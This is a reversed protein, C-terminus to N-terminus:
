ANFMEVNSEYYANWSIIEHCLLVATSPPLRFCLAVDYLWRLGALLMGLLSLRVMANVLVQDM